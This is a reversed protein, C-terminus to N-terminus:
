KQGANQLKHFEQMERQAEATKGQKRYLSALSFHAQAALSSAKEIAIV